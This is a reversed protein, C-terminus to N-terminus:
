PQRALTGQCSTTEGATLSITGAVENVTYQVDATYSLSGGQLSVNVTQSGTGSQALNGTQGAFVLDLVIRASDSTYLIQRVTAVNSSKGNSDNITASDGAQTLNVLQDPSDTFGIVTIAALKGDADFKVQVDLKGSTPASGAGNLSQTVSCNVSGNWAGALGSAGIATGNDNGNADSSAPCGGLCAGLLLCSVLAAAQMRSEMKM